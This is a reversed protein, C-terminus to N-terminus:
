HAALDQAAPAVYGGCACAYAPAAGVFIGALLALVAGLAAWRRLLRTM